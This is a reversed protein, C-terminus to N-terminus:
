YRAKRRAARDGLHQARSQADVWLAKSMFPWPIFFAVGMRILTLADRWSQVQAGPPAAPPNPTAATPAPTSTM